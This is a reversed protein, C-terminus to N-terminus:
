PVPGSGMVLPTTPAAGSTALAELDCANSPGEVRRQLASSTVYDMKM